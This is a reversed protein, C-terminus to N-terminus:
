WRSLQNGQHLDFDGWEENQLSSNRRHTNTNGQGQGVNMRREIKVLAILSLASMWDWDDNDGECGGLLALGSACSAPNLTPGPQDNESKTPIRLTMVSEQRADAATANESLSTFPSSSNCHSTYSVRLHTQAMEELVSIRARAEQVRVPAPAGSVSSGNRRRDDGLQHMLPHYTNYNM